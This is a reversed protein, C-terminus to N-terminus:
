IKKQADSSARVLTKSETQIYPTVLHAAVMM